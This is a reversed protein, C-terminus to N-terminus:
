KLPIPKISGSKLVHTFEGPFQNPHVFLGGANINAGGENLGFCSYDSCNNTPFWYDFANNSQSEFWFRAADPNTLTVPALMYDYGPHKLNFDARSDKDDLNWKYAVSKRNDFQMGATNMSMMGGDIWNWFGDKPEGNQAEPHNVEYITNNKIDYAMAHAPGNSRSMFYWTENAAGQPRSDGILTNRMTKGKPPTFGGNGANFMARGSAGALSMVGSMGSKTASKAAAGGGKELGKLFM